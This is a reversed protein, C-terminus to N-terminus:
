QILSIESLLENVIELNASAVEEELEEKSSDQLLAKAKELNSRAPLFNGLEIQAKSLTILYDVLCCEKNGKHEKLVKLATESQRNAILAKSLDLKYDLNAVDAKLSKKSWYIAKEYDMLDLYTKSLFSMIRDNNRDSDLALKLKNIARDYNNNIIDLRYSELLADTFNPKVRIAESLHKEAEEYSGEAKYLLALNYNIYPSNSDIKKAKLFYKKAERPKNLKANVLGLGLFAEKSSEERGIINLYVSEAKDLADVKYYSKALGLEYKLESKIDIATEFALSADSFSEERMYQVGLNYWIKSSKCDKTLPLIKSAQVEDGGLIKNLKDEAELCNDESTASSIFAFVFSFLFLSFYFRKM